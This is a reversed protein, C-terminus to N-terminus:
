DGRENKYERINAVLEMLYDLCTLDCNIEVVKAIDLDSAEPNSNLEAEIEIAIEKMKGM